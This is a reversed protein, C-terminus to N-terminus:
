KKFKLFINYLPFIIHAIKDIAKILKPLVREIDKWVAQKMWAKIHM